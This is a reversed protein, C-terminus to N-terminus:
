VISNEMYPRAHIFYSLIMTTVDWCETIEESKSILGMGLGWVLWLGM